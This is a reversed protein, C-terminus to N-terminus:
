PLGNEYLRMLGSEPHSDDELTSLFFGWGGSHSGKRLWIGQWAPLRSGANDWDPTFTGSLKGTGQAFKLTFSRDSAPKSVKGGTLSFNSVSVPEDLKGDSLRLLPEDAEVKILADYQVGIFGSEIGEPWGETYLQTEKALKSSGSKVMVQPRFWLLWEERVDSDENMPDFILTGILSGGLDGAKGGPTRLPVHLAMEDGPLLATAATIPTGDALTGTLRLTGNAQLKFSGFGAGQPYTAASRAPIQEMAPLAFTYYGQKGNNLLSAPAATKSDYAPLRAVGEMMAQPGQAQLNFQDNEYHGSLLMASPDYLPWTATFRAKPLNFWLSGDGNLRGSFTVKTGNHMLYGSLAGTRTVLTIKASGFTGNGSPSTETAGLLGYFSVNAGLDTFPNSVFVAQVGGLDAENMVLRLENGSRGFSVNQGEPVIWHSFAYGTKAVATFAIETRFAAELTQVPDGKASRHTFFTGSVAKLKLTGVSDPPVGEPTVRTIELTYRRIFDFRHRLERVNGTLDYARITLNVAGNAPSIALSWPVSAPRSSEGLEALYTQGAYEVEVRDVGTDDGATGTLLVPATQSVTKGKPDTLKVTPLKSDPNLLRVDAMTVPGLVSGSPNSLSVFFRRNPLTGTRPLIQIQVTKSTEGEAFELVTTLATYDTGSLASAFPPATSPTGNVTRLTVRGAPGAARTVTIAASGDAALYRPSSFSYGVNWDYGRGAIAFTYLPQNKADSAITVTASHDGLTTPTFTIHFNQTGGQAAVTGSSPQRSVRFAPSGEVTIYDPAPQTFTLVDDGANHLNFTRTISGGQHSAWGFQTHDGEDPTTDGAAIVQNNGRLSIEPDPVSLRWVVMSAATGYLHGDTGFVPTCEPFAATHGDFEYLTTLIGTAPAFRFVTGYGKGGHRTTGYLYGDNGEVLGSVPSAGDSGSFSYVLTLTGSASMKFIAGRGNAGGGSMGYFFGDDAQVLSGEPRTGTSSNFSHLRTFEGSASIRFVTGLFSAGGTQTTGYFYGDSGQVLEALPTGGDNGDFHHLVTFQGASTIKFVTGEDSSGGNETTGYFSGDSGQVLGARPNAGQSGNFRHLTTIAGSPTVKFVTGYGYSGGSQATGYYHGDVGRMLNGCPNGGGSSGFSNLVTLSGSSSIKYITGNGFTGGYATTGYFEGDSTPELASRPSKGKRKFQFIVSIGDQASFKFVSGLELSGGSSETGYFQGDSGEVLGAKSAWGGGSNFYDLTEHEGAPSISFLTGEAGAGGASTTGYFKGDSGQVLTAQPISGDSVNFSHLMTLTGSSTIKFVTGWNAGGRECVGYFANDAGQVLGAFPHAGDSHSFSHLTTLVGSSTISFLTGYDNSGGSYTTGYFLGDNGQILSAQPFSGDVGTFTHLTSLVGDSTIRFVTGFGDAGGKYTTGYFHGDSGLVLSARPQSGDSGSFSHLLTHVGASTIKFVTGFGDRGGTGGFETTGYFVGDQGQVLGAAPFMGTPIQFSYLTTIEGSPTIKFVTGFTSIGGGHTTGYFQGDEGEVLKSKPSSGLNDSFLFEMTQADVACPFLLVLPLILRCLTSWPLGPIILEM